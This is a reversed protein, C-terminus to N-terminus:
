HNGFYALSPQHKDNHCSILIVGNCSLRRRAVVRGSQKEQTGGTWYLRLAEITDVIHQCICVEKFQPQM